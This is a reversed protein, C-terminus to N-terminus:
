KCFEFIINLTLKKSIIEKVKFNCVFAWLLKPVGGLFTYEGVKLLRVLLALEKDRVFSSM